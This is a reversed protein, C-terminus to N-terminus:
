LSDCRPPLVTSRDRRIPWSKRQQEREEGPGQLRELIGSLQLLGQRGSLQKWVKGSCKAGVELRADL